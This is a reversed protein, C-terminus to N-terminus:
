TRTRGGIIGEEDCCTAAQIASRFAPEDTM